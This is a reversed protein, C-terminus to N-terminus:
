VIPEQAKWRLEINFGGTLDDLPITVPRDNNTVAFQLRLRGRPNNGLGASCSTKLGQQSVVVKKSYGTGSTGGSFNGLSVSAVTAVPRNDNNALSIKLVAATNNTSANLPAARYRFSMDVSDVVLRASENTAIGGPFDCSILYTSSWSAGSNPSGTQLAVGTSGSDKGQERLLTTTGFIFDATTTSPVTAMGGTTASSPAVIERTPAVECDSLWNSSPLAGVVGYLCHRFPQAVIGTHNEGGGAGNYLLCDPMGGYGSRVGSIPVGSTVTVTNRKVEAHAGVWSGNPAQVEIAWFWPQSPPQACCNQCNATGGLHLGHSTTPSFTVVVQTRNRSTHTVGQLKPGEHVVGPELYLLARATLALRRGVEQKLRDCCCLM